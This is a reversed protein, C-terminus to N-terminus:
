RQATETWEGKIRQAWTWRFCPWQQVALKFRIRAAEMCRAGKVEVLEPADGDGHEVLFDPTYRCRSRDAVNGDVIVLTMPEYRWASIEGARKRGDLIAAYQEEIKSRYRSREVPAVIQTKIPVPALKDVITIAPNARAREVAAAFGDSRKRRM